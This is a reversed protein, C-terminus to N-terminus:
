EVNKLAEFQEPQPRNEYLIETSKEPFKEELEQLKDDLERVKSNLKHIKDDINPTGEGDPKSDHDNHAVVDSENKICLYQM